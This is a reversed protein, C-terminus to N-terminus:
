YPLYPIYKPTDLTYLTVRFKKNYAPVFLEDNNYIEDCGYEETCNRKNKFIPIKVERFKDTATYYMWKSSGPYTPKGYLPLINDNKDNVLIGVQQFEGSYGRTPINIPVGINRLYNGYPTTYPNSREPPLLPNIIRDYAKNVTYMSDNAVISYPIKPLEVLERQQKEKLEQFKNKTEIEEIKTNLIENEKKITQNINEMNNEIIQHTSKNWETVIWYIIFFIIILLLILKSYNFCILGPPCEKM